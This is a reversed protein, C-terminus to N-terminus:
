SAAQGDDDDDDDLLLDELTRDRTEVIEKYLGLHQGAMRLAETKSHLKITQKSYDVAAVARIADPRVGDRVKLRHTEGEKVFEYDDESSLAVVALEELVKFAKVRSRKEREAMVRNIQLEVEPDDLLECATQKARKESWGAVIAARAGNFDVCYEIAFIRIKLQRPSLRKM